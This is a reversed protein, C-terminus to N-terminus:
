RTSSAGTPLTGVDHVPVIGPHELHAIIRAERRLRAITEPDAMEAAVVKLAM